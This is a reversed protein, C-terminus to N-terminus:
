KKIVCNFLFCTMKGRAGDKVEIHQTDIKFHKLPIKFPGVFPVVFSALSNM